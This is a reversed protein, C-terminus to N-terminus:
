EDDTEAHEPVPLAETTMEYPVVEIEVGVTARPVLKVCVNEGPTRPSWAM